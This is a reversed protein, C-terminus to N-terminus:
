IRGSELDLFAQDLDAMTQFSVHEPSHKAVIVLSVAATVPSADFQALLEPLHRTLIAKSEPDAILEGLPTNLAKSRAPFRDALRQNAAFDGWISKLWAVSLPLWEAVRPEVASALGGATLPKALSLGHDGDSFIHLEYPVRARNLASALALANEANVLPDNATQFIFTPPTAGDVHEDASPIAKGLAAGVSALICPYGLIMAAPRTRGMTGLSAALHGGASFGVVAVRTPDVGWEGANEIVQELADEADNLVAPFQGADGVSYRLVFAHYGEALYALAIPEAERDSCFTYGGGPFVLIAPRVDCTPLEPSRDQIYATLTVDPREELQLAFTRM